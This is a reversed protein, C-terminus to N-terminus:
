YSNLRCFAAHFRRNANSAHMVSGPSTMARAVIHHDVSTSHREMLLM